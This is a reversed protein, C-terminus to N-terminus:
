AESGSARLKADIFLKHTLNLSLSIRRIEETEYHSIDGDAQAVSFLVDLFRTREEETTSSFFERTLRFYDMEASVESVAAEAVIAAAEQSIDWGARLAQVMTDFEDDTVKKDVRAVRAMLGGALSLKRLDADSINWSTEEQDLRQRVVFYVKNKIFDEFFEERNPANSVTLSRRQIPGQILRSLQGFISTNGSEITSKIEELVVLEEETVVGDAHILDDLASLAFEGDERTRLAAKLEDVLRAREEDGVPSQLYLELMAWDRGTIELGQKFGAHPVWFLLDKLSNTEELTIEGDVWAAAIIVKGLTLILDKEPM